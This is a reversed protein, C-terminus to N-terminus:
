LLVMVALQQMDFLPDLGQAVMAPGGIGAFGLDPRAARLAAMLRAGLVDGSTEGAVIYILPPGPHHQM